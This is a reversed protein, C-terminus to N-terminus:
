VYCNLIACTITPDAAGDGGFIGVRLLVDNVRAGAPITIEASYFMVNVTHSGASDAFTVWGADGTVVAPNGGLHYQFRLKTAAVVAGGLRGQIRVKTLGRLDHMQRFNPDSVANFTNAALNSAAASAAAFPPQLDISKGTVPGTAGQAGPAGASGANGQPGQAGQAGTQGQPGQVGTAGDQGAIGAPGQTGTNGTVGAQGPQGVAGQLGQAGTQGTLGPPGQPGAAGQPGPPGQPGVAGEGGESSTPVHADVVARIAPELSSNEVYVWFVNAIASFDDLKCAVGAAGMEACLQAADHPKNFRFKSPM